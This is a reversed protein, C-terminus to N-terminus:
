MAYKMSGSMHHLKQIYTSKNGPLSLYETIDSPSSLATIIVKQLVSYFSSPFPFYVEKMPNSVEKIEEQKKTCGALTGLLFIFIFKLQLIKRMDKRGKKKELGFARKRWEETNNKEMVSTKAREEWDYLIEGDKELGFGM